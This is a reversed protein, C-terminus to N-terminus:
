TNIYGSMDIFPLNEVDQYTEILYLSKTRFFDIEFPEFEWTEREDPFTGPLMGALRRYDADSRIRYFKVAAINAYELDKNSDAVFLLDRYGLRKIMKLIEGKDNGGATDGGHIATFCGRDFGHRAFDKELIDQTVGSAIFLDYVGALRHLFAKVSVYPKWFRDAAADNLGSYVRNYIQRAKAYAERYTEGLDFGDFSAVSDPVHNVLANVIASFQEFRPSGPYRIYADVMRATLTDAGAVLFDNLRTRRCAYWSAFIIHVGKDLNLPGNQILTGDFDFAVACEHDPITQIAM